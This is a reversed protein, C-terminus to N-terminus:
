EAKKSVVAQGSLYTLVCEVKVMTGSPISRLNRIIDIVVDFKSQNNAYVIMSMSRLGGCDDVSLLPRQLVVVNVPAKALKAEHLRDFLEEAILKLEVTTDNAGPIIHVSKM